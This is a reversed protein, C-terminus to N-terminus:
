SSKVRWNGNRKVYKQWANETFLYGRFLKAHQIIFREYSRRARWFVAFRTVQLKITISHTMVSCRPIVHSQMACAYMLIWLEFTSWMWLEYCQLLAYFPWFPHSLAIYSSIPSCTIGLHLTIVWLIVILSWSGPLDRKIKLEIEDDSCGPDWSIKFCSMWMLPLFLCTSNQVTVTIDAQGFHYEVERLFIFVHAFHM